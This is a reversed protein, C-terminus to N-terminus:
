WTMYFCYKHSQGKIAKLIAVMVIMMISFLCDQQMLFDDELAVDDATRSLMM